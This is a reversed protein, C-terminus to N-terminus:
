ELLRFGKVPMAQLAADLPKGADLDLWRGPSQEDIHVRKIVHRPSGDILMKGFALEYSKGKIPVFNEDVIWRSAPAADSAQAAAHAAADDIGFKALIGSLTVM